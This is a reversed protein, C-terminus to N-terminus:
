IKKFTKKLVTKKGNGGTVEIVVKNEQAALPITASFTNDKKQYVREGNVMIISEGATKGVLTIKDERRFVTTQPSIITISPPTFYLVLQYAFYSIFILVLFFVLIQFLGRGPPAYRKKFGAGFQAEEQKEYERRFVAQLKEQNIGLFRGYAKIVGVAYTKSPFTQWDGAEVATLSNIRIKTAAAAARLTLGKAERQSKFLEGVTLM